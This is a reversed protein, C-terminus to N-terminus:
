KLRSNKRAKRNQEKDRGSVQQFAKNMINTGRKNFLGFSLTKM